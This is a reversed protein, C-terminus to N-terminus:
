PMASLASQCLILLEIVLLSGSFRCGNFFTNLSVTVPLFNFTFPKSELAHPLVQSTLFKRRFPLEFSFPQSLLLTDRVSHQECAVTHIGHVVFAALKMEPRPLPWCALAITPSSWRHHLCVWFLVSSTPICPQLRWFAELCSGALHM